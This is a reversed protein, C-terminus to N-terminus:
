QAEGKAKAIANELEEITSYVGWSNWDGGQEDPTTLVSFGFDEFPGRYADDADLPAGVEDTGDRKPVYELYVNDVVHFIDTEGWELDTPPSQSPVDHVYEYKGDVYDYLEQTYEPEADEGEQGLIEQLTTNEVVNHKGEYDKVSPADESSLEELDKELKKFAEEDSDLDDEDAVKVDIFNIRDCCSPAEGAVFGASALTNIGEASRLLTIIDAYDEDDCELYLGQNDVHVSGGVDIGLDSLAKSLPKVKTELEEARSLEEFIKDVDEECFDAYDSEQSENYLFKLLNKV